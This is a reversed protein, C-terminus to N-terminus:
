KCADQCCSHAGQASAGLVAGRLVPCQFLPATAPTGSGRRAGGAPSSWAARTSPSVHLVQGSILMLPRAQTLSCPQVGTTRPHAGSRAAITWCMSGFFRSNRVPWTDHVTVFRLLASGVGACRGCHSAGCSRTSQRPSRLRYLSLSSRRRTLRQSQCSSVSSVPKFAGVRTRNSTRCEDPSDAPFASGDASRTLSVALFIGGAHPEECRHSCSFLTAACCLLPLWSCTCPARPARAACRCACAPTVSAGSTM